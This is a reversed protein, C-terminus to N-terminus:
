ILIQEFKKTNNILEQKTVSRVFNALEDPKFSSFISM